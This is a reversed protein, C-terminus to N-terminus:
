KELAAKDDEKQKRADVWQDLQKKDMQTKKQYEEIKVKM